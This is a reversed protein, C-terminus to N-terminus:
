RDSPKALTARRRHEAAVAPQEVHDYVEAAALHFDRTGALASACKELDGLAERWKELRAYARFRTDLIQLDNPAKRLAATVLEVAKEPQPVAAHLYAWALNNLVEPADPRLRYATDLYRFAAAEDGHQLSDAGLVLYASAPTKGEVIQGLL